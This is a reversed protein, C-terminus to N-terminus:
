KLARIEISNNGVTTKFRMLFNMGLLGDLKGDADDLPAVLM